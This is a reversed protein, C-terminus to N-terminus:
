GRAVPEHLRDAAAAHAGNPTRAVIEEVAVHSDLLDPQGHDEVLLQPGLQARPGLTLAPGGGHHGMGGDDRHEVHDGLVLTRPDHHLEELGLGELLDDLPLAREVRPAHRVDAPLHQARQAGDVRLADEV